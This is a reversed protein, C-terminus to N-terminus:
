REFAAVGIPVTANLDAIVESAMGSSIWAAVRWIASRAMAAQM